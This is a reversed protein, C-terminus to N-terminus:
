YDAQALSWSTTGGAMTGDESENAQLRDYIDMLQRMAATDNYSSGDPSSWSARKLSDFMLSEVAELAAGNISGAELFQDIEDDSFFSYVYVVRFASGASLPAAFTVLGTANFTAGTASWGLPGIVYATGSTVNRHLLASNTATGDGVGQAEYRLPADQVKLRVQEASSLAM